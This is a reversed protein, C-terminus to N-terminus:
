AKCHKCSSIQMTSLRIGNNVLKWPTRQRWRCEQGLDSEEDDPASHKNDSSSLEDASTSKREDEPPNLDEAESETELAFTLLSKNPTFSGTRQVSGAGSLLGLRAALIRSM